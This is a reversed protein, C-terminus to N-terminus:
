GRKGPLTLTGRKKRSLRPDTYVERDHISDHQEMVHDDRSPKRPKPPNANREAEAKAAAIRALEADTQNLVLVFLAYAFAASLPLVSWPTRIAHVRAMRAHIYLAEPPAERNARVFKALEGAHAAPDTVAGFTPWALNLDGGSGEDNLLVSAHAATNFALRLARDNQIDTM